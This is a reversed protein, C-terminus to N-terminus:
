THMCKLPFSNRLETRGTHSLWVPPEPLLLARCLRHQAPQVRAAGGELHEGARVSDAQCRCSAEQVSVGSGCAPPPPWAPKPWARMRAAQRYAGHKASSGSRARGCRRWASLKKRTERPERGAEPPLSGMSSPGPWPSESSLRGGAPPLGEDPPAAPIRAVSTGVPKLCGCMISLMACPPGLWALPCTCGPSRRSSTSPASTLFRDSFSMWALIM